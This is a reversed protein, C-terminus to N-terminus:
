SAWSPALHRVDQHPGPVAVYAGDPSLGLPAQGDAAGALRRRRADHAGRQRRRVEARRRDRRAARRDLQRGLPVPQAPTTCWRPRAGRRRRRTTSSPGSGAGRESGLAVLPVGPAAFFDTTSADPRRQVLGPADAPAIATVAWPSAADARSIVRRAAQSPDGGFWVDHRCDVNAFSHGLVRQRAPGGAPDARRRRHPDARRPRLAARSDGYLFSVQATDTITATVTYEQGDTDLAHDRVRGRHAHHLATCAAVGRQQGDPSIGPEEYAEGDLTYSSWTVGDPSWMARSSIPATTRAYGGRDCQALVAVAGNATRGEVEGCFLNKSRLVELARGWAGTAADRRRVLGRPLQRGGVRAAPRRRGADARRRGPDGAAARAAPPAAPAPEAGVTSGTLVAAATALAVIVGTIRSM